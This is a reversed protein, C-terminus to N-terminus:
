KIVLMTPTPLGPKWDLPKLLDGLGLLVPHKYGRVNGTVILPAVQELDFASRVIPLYENLLKADRGDKWNMKAEIVLARKEPRHLLVADPSRRKWNWDRFWPEVLVEWEPLNVQCHIKLLKYFRQHYALGREIASNKTKTTCGTSSGFRVDPQHYWQVAAKM